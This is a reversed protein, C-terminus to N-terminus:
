NPHTQITTEIVNKGHPKSNIKVKEFVNVVYMTEIVISVLNNMSHYLKLFM